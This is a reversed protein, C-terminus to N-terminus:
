IYEIKVIGHKKYGFTEKDLWDRVTKRTVKLGKALQPKTDYIKIDGDEFEVQYPKYPKTGNKHSDLENFFRDCWELNKYYNNHINHDKHNVEKFQNPNDM